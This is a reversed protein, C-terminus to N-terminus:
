AHCHIRITKTTATATTITSATTTIIICSSSYYNYLPQDITPVEQSFPWSASILDILLDSRNPGQSDLGTMCVLQLLM